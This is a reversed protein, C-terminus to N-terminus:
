LKEIAVFHKTKSIPRTEAIKVRDGISLSLKENHVAFDKTRKVSKKYIPHRKMHTLRVRVTKASGVAVVEGIFEKAM